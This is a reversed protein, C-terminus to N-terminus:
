QAKLVAASEASSNEMAFVGSLTRLSSISTHPRAGSARALLATLQLLRRLRLRCSRARRMPSASSRRSPQSFGLEIDVVPLDLGVQLEVADDGGGESTAPLSNPTVNV